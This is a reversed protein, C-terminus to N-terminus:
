RPRLSAIILVLPLGIILVARLAPPAGFHWLAANLHYLAFGSAVLMIVTGLPGKAFPPAWEEDPKGGKQQPDPELKDPQQREPQNEVTM